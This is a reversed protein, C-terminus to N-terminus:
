GPAALRRSRDGSAAQRARSQTRNGSRGRRRRQNRRHLRPQRYRHCRGADARLATSACAPEAVPEEGPTSLAHARWVPSAPSRFRSRRRTSDLVPIAGVLFLVNSAWPALIGILLAASQGRFPLSDDRILELLPVSGLLGLLYTYATIIWFWPAPTRSLLLMGDERVVRSDAYLLGTDTLAFVVTLVPVISLLAVYRPQIYRDRGTYELSFLMWSVPIAVVGIWRLDAWFVKAGLTSAEIDFLLLASWLCQGALLIVLPVAGPEPRERWALLAAATGIAITALLIASLITISFVSVSSIDSNAILRAPLTM